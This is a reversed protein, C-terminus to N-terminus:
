IAPSHRHVAGSDIVQAQAAVEATMLTAVVFIGLLTKRIGNKWKKFMM